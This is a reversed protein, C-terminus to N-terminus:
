GALGSEGRARREMPLLLEYAMGHVPTPVGVQHGFRVIAGNWADLESPRGDVIDRLMSSTTGAPMADYFAWLQAKDDDGLEHGLARGVALGEDMAADILARTAPRGRMIDMPSRALAGLGSWSSVLLLKLWLARRINGSVAADIGAAQVTEVLARVRESTAGDLEGIEIYTGPNLHRIVGPAEILSFVKSLGGLVRQPGIAEALQDPAEVGNLFPVVLTHEGLLPAMAAAAEPLQWTKVAVIVLEVEGIDAPSDTALPDRLHQDGLPSLIRLGQERIASLHAGRAIFGVEHGAQVLRAGYYGGLGGSGYIAVRM